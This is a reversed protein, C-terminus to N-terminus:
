KKKKTAWVIWILIKGSKSGDKEEMEMGSWEDM